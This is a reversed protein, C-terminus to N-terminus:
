DETEIKKYLYRMEDKLVYYWVRQSDQNTIRKRNCKTKLQLQFEKPKLEDPKLKLAEACNMGNVLEDYHECIWVEIVPRSAEILDLKAETMPINKPDFDSLYIKMYYNFLQVYFENTFSKFLNNFYERDGVYNGACSLVVYRRDGAEIKVPFSNNSVFIFNAVNEADHRPQFKENIRITKETIISKLSDFDTKDKANKLENFISLM